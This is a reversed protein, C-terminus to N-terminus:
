GEFARSACDEGRSIKIGDKENGRRKEQRIKTLVRFDEKTIRSQAQFYCTKVEQQISHMMGKEEPM